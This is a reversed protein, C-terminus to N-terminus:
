DLSQLKISRKRKEWRGAIQVTEDIIIVDNKIQIIQGYNKGIYNGVKVQSVLGDPQAILACINKNQKLIGVFKIAELPYAELPQKTRQLNPTILDALQHRQIPQFPSRRTDSDQFM